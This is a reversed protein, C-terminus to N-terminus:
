IRRDDVKEEPKLIIGRNKHGNIKVLVPSEFRLHRTYERAEIAPQSLLWDWDVAGQRQKSNITFYGVQFSTINQFFHSGQSPTVDFDKFGAEVIARTVALDDPSPSPDGSPHNHAVIVAAANQKVAERFIEG